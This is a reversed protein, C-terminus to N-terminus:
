TLSYICVFGLAGGSYSQPHTSSPLLLLFFHWGWEPRLPSMWRTENSVGDSIVNVWNWISFIWTNRFYKMMTSCCSADWLGLLQFTSGPLGYVTGWQTSPLPPSPPPPSPLSFSLFHALKAKECPWPDEVTVHHSQCGSPSSANKHKIGSSSMMFTVLFRNM